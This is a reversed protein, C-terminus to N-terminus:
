LGRASGGALLVPSARVAAGHPAGRAVGEGRAGVWRTTATGQCDRGPRAHM